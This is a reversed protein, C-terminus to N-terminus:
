CFIVEEILEMELAENLAKKIEDRKYSLEQRLVASKLRISLQKEKLDVSITKSAIVTGMLEEWSQRLRVENLGERLRYAKILEDIVEKLSQQNSRIMTCLHNIKFGCNNVFTPLYCLLQFHIPKIKFM